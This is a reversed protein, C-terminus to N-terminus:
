KVRPVGSPGPEPPKLEIREILALVLDAVGFVSLLAGVAALALSSSALPRAGVAALTGVGAGAVLWALPPRGNKTGKRGRAVARWLGVLLLPVAVWPTTWCWAGDAWHGNALAGRWEDALAHWEGGNVLRLWDDQGPRAAAVGIAPILFAVAMLRGRDRWSAGRAMLGVAVTLVVLAMTVHQVRYRAMPDAPDPLHRGYWGFYTIGVAVVALVAWPAWGPRGQRSGAGIGIALTALLVADSGREPFATNAASNSDAFGLLAIAAAAPILGHFRWAAYGVAAVAALGTLLRYAPDDGALNGPRLIALGVLTGLLLLPALRPLRIDTPDDM